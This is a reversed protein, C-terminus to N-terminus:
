VFLLIRIYKRINYINNVTWTLNNKPSYFIQFSVPPSEQGIVTSHQNVYSLVWLRGAPLNSPFDADSLPRDLFNNVVQHGFTVSDALFVTPTIGIGYMRLERHPVMEFM